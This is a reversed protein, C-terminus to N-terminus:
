HRLQDLHICQLLVCYSQGINVLTDGVNRGAGIRMIICRHLNDCIDTHTDTHTSIQKNIYKYEYIHM